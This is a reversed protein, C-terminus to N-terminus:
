KLYTFSWAVVTCKAKRREEKSFFYISNGIVGSITMLVILLADNVLISLNVNENQCWDLLRSFM